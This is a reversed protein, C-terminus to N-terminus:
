EQLDKVWVSVSNNNAKFDGCFRYGNDAVYDYLFERMERTASTNGGRFANEHAQYAYESTNYIVIAKPPNERLFEIDARVSDDGAVDFGQVTTYTGPNFSVRWAM